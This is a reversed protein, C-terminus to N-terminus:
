HGVLEFVVMPDGDDQRAIRARVRQGIHLTEPDAGEVRSMLQAGEDLRVIVVNYPPAPTKQSVWTLSYITGLGSAEIWELDTDGTGPELVRPPFFVTGSSVARQLLFKGEELAARWHAEPGGTIAEM